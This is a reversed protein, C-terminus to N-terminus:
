GVKVVLGAVGRCCGACFGRCGATRFGRLPELIVGSVGRAVGYAVDKVPRLRSSDSEQQQRWRQYEEDMSLTAVGSGLTTTIRTAASFLESTTNSVLSLTGRVAGM